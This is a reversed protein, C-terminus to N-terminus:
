TAAIGGNIPINQGTIWSAERSALYVVAAGVDDPTGLRGVPVGRAPAALADDAGPKSGANDMLGLSLCNVTVGQRAVEHALSRSFGVAGSKAAGYLSVGLGAGLRGAESSITIVRGHGREVMGPLALSVCEMVAFLNLRVFREWDARTTQLFPALAFGDAPIGANNVLTDLGGFTDVATAILAEAGDWDAVDDTSPVARGGGAVIEDVVEQAPTASPDSGDQAVGVDNVVVAAGQHAFELAHARGLGRGAGTVVVVRGECIGSM